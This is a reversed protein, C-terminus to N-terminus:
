ACCCRGVDRQRAVLAERAHGRDRAHSGRGFGARAVSSTGAAATPLGAANRALVRTASYRKLPPDLKPVRSM